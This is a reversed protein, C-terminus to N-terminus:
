TWIQLVVRCSIHCLRPLWKGLPASSGGRVLLAAIVVLNGTVHATFLKGLSLFGMVDVMGAVTSLLPPLRRQWRAVEPRDQSPYAWPHLSNSEPSMPM